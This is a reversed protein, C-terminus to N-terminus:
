FIHTVTLQSLFVGNPNISFELLYGVVLTLSPNRLCLSLLEKCAYSEFACWVHLLKEKSFHTDSWHVVSKVRLPSKHHLPLPILFFLPYSFLQNTQQISFLQILYKNLGFNYYFFFFDLSYFTILWHFWPPITSDRSVQWVSSIIYSHSCM